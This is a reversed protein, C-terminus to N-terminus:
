KADDGERLTFVGHAPADGPKGGCATVCFLTLTDGMLASLRKTAKATIDGEESGIAGVSLLSHGARAALLNPPRAVAPLADCLTDRGPRVQRAEILCPGYCSAVM